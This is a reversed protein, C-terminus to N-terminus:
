HQTLNNVTKVFYIYLLFKFFLTIRPYTGMLGPTGSCVSRTPNKTRQELSGPQAPHVLKGVHLMHHHAPSPGAGWVPQPGSCTWDQVCGRGLRISPHELEETCPPTLQCAAQPEVWDPRHLPWFVLKVGLTPPPPYDNSRLADTIHERGRDAGCGLFVLQRSQDDSKLCSSGQIGIPHHSRFSLYQNTHHEPTWVPM